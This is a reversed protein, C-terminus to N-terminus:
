VEDIEEISLGMIMQQIYAVRNKGEEMDEEDEEELNHIVCHRPQFRQKPYSPYNHAM